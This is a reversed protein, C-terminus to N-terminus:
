KGFWNALASLGALIFIVTCIGGVTILAHRDSM